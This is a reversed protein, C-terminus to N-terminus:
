VGEVITYDRTAAPLAFKLADRTSRQITSNRRRRSIPLDLSSTEDADPGRWTSVLGAVRSFSEVTSNLQRARSRPTNRTNNWTM